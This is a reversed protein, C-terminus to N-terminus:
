AGCFLSLYRRMDVTSDPTTACAEAAGGPRLLEDPGTTESHSLAIGLSAPIGARFGRSAGRHLLVLNNPGPTIASAFILLALATM